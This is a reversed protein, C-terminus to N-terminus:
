PIPFNRRSITEARGACRRQPGDRFSNGRALLHHLRAAASRKERHLLWKEADPYKGRGYDFYGLALAARSGAAGPNKQTALASLKAYASAFNKDKLSRCLAELQKNAQSTKAPAAKAKHVKVAPKAVLYPEAFSATSLLVLAAAIAVLRGTFNMIVIRTGSFPLPIRINESPKRMAGPSSKWWGAISIIWPIIRFRAFAAITNRARKISIPAYGTVSITTRM